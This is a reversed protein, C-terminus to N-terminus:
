DGLLDRERLFPDLAVAARLSASAGSRDGKRLLIVARGALAGFHRPELALTREIDRLSADLNGAFFNVTARQNWIEAHGPHAAAIRDLTHLAREYDFDRAQAIAQGLAADVEPNGTALWAQQITQEVKRASAEDKALRLQAFLLDLRETRADRAGPM